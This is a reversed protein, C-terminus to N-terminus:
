FLKTSYEEFFEPTENYFKRLMELLNSKAGTYDFVPHGAPEFFPVVEMTIMHRNCFAKLRKCNPTANDLQITYLTQKKM